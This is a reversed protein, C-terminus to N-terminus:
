SNDSDNEQGLDENILKRIYGVKNEVSDLKDLIARDRNLSFKLYVRRTNAADWKDRARRQSERLKSM